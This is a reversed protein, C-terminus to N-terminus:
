YGWVQLTPYILYIHVLTKFLRVKSRIRLNSQPSINPLYVVFTKTYGGIEM